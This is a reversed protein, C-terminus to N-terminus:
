PATIRKIAFKSNSKTTAAADPPHTKTVAPTAHFKGIKNPREPGPPRISADRPDNADHQKEGLGPKSDSFALVDSVSPRRKM